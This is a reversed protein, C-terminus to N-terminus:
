SDSPGGLFIHQKIWDLFPKIPKQWIKHLHQKSSFGAHIICGESKVASPQQIKPPQLFASLPWTNTEKWLQAFAQRVLTEELRGWISSVLQPDCSYLPRVNWQRLERKINSSTLIYIKWSNGSPHEMRNDKKGKQIGRSVCFRIQCM